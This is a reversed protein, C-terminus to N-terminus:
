VERNTPLTLHTYSVPAPDNFHTWWAELAPPAATTAPGAHQFAQPMTSAPKVYDPGVACASLALSLATGLLATALGAKRASMSSQDNKM